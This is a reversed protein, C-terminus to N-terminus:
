VLHLMLFLSKTTFSSFLLKTYSPNTKNLLSTESWRWDMIHVPYFNFFLWKAGVTFGGNKIRFLDPYNREKNDIIGLLSCYYGDTQFVQYTVTPTTKSLKEFPFMDREHYRM